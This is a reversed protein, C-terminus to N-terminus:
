CNKSENKEHCLQTLKLVAVDIDEMNKSRLMEGLNRVNCRLNEGCKGCIVDKIVRAIDERQLAGNDDRLVELAVGIEVILKANMPQDLDMPMAIVPIGYDISESISNWGWHSVFGRYEFSDSNKSTSGMRGYGDRKFKIIESMHDIYKGEMERSTGILMMGTFEEPARVEPDDDEGHEKVVEHARTLDYPRLRLAQFPFEVDPKVFLHSFYSRM